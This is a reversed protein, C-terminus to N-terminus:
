SEEDVDDGQDHDEETGDAECVMAKVRESEARSVLTSIFAEGAWKWISFQEFPESSERRKNEQGLGHNIQFAKKEAKSHWPEEASVEEDIGVTELVVKVLLNETNCSVRNQHQEFCEKNHKFKHENDRYLPEKSEASEVGPFM